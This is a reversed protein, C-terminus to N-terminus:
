AGMMEGDTGPLTPAARRESKRQRKNNYMRSDAIHMLEKSDKSEHMYVMGLSFGAFAFGKGQLYEVTQQLMQAILEKGGSVCTLAFEDGGLRHLTAIGQLRKQLDWGFEQLLQDGREHGFKDNYYKLGDLDLFTLSGEPPLQRLEPELAYRNPLGTLADTMAILESQKLQLLASEKDKHLQAFQYSLVLALLITEGAVSLLGLHEIYFNYEGFFGKSTITLGGLAFFTLIAILYIRASPNGRYAATIGVCLGYCLFIGVGIRAFELTYNPYDYALLLFLLMLSIGAVGAYFLKPYAAHSIGLLSMVFLMYALNSFLIPTSSLYFQHIGFLDSLVLLGAANFVLNGLIFVAYMGEAAHLRVGALATYYIGLGIFIGLCVLTLANTLKIAQQYHAASDIFPQPPAIFYPSSLETVLRYHGAALKMQRGHRLFFPNLTANMIGGQSSAVLKGSVNLVSHRFHGLTSTNKFDLVYEGPQSINFEGQFYFHGGTLVPEAVPKFKASNSFDPAAVDLELDHRKMDHRIDDALYGHAQYWQGTPDIPQAQCTPILWALLLVLCSFFALQKRM